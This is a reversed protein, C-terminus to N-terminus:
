LGKVIKKLYFHCTKTDLSLMKTSAFNSYALYINKKYELKLMNITTYTDTSLPASEAEWRIDEYQIRNSSSIHVESLQSVKSNGVVIVEGNINTNYTIEEGFQHKQTKKTKKLTYWCISSKTYYYYGKFHNTNTQM